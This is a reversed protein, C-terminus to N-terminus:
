KEQDHNFVIIQGYLFKFFQEPTMEERAEETRLRCNKDLLHQESVLSWDIFKPETHIVRNQDIDNKNITYRSSIAISGPNSYIRGSNMIDAYQMVRFVKVRNQDM